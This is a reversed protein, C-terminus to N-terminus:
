QTSKLFKDFLNKWELAEENDLWDEVYYDSNEIFVDRAKTELETLRSLEKKTLKM